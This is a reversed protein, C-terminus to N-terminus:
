PKTSPVSASAQEATAAAEAPKQPKDAQEEVPAAPPEVWKGAKVLYQKLGPLPFNQAYAKHAYPLAEDYKKQRALLLGLNYNITPDEPSLEVAKNLMTQAQSEKGMSFQYRAYMLWATSDDPFARVAREFYCETPLNSGSIVGNRFRPAVRLVTNLARYHNPFHVLTYELDSGLQGTSGRIGNEVDDTFHRNNVQALLTEDPVRYDHQVGELTGCYTKAGASCALASLTAALALSRYNM